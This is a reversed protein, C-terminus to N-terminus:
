KASPQGGRSGAAARKADRRAAARTALRRLARHLAMRAADYTGLDFEQAIKAIPWQRELRAVIMNRDKASLDMLAARYQWRQEKQIAAELPTTCDAAHNEELEVNRPRRAVRRMEDRIRNVTASRMYAQMAGEYRPEFTDLRDLVNFAVDQVLDATDLSGRAIAPLRGHAWRRLRPLCYELLAEIARRDGAKARRVLEIMSEDSGDPRDTLPKSDDPM